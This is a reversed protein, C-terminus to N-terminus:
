GTGTWTRNGHFGPTRPRHASSTSDMTVNGMNTSDLLPPPSASGSLDVRVSPRSPWRGDGCGFNALAIPWRTRSCRFASSSTRFWRRRCVRRQLLDAVRDAAVAGQRRRRPRGGRGPRLRRLDVGHLQPRRVATALAPDLDPDRRLGQLAMMTERGSTLLLLLM